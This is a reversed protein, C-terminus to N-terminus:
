NQSSFSCFWGMSKGNKVCVREEEAFIYRSKGWAQLTGAVRRSVSFSGIRSCLKGLHSIDMEIELHNFQQHMFDNLLFADGEFTRMFPCM